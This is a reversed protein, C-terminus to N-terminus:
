SIIKKYIEQPKLDESYCEAFKKAYGNTVWRMHADDWGIDKGEKKSEDWKFIEVCKLQALFRVDNHSHIIIEKLLCYKNDSKCEDCCVENVLKTLKTKDNKTM